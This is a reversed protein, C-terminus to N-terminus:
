ITFQFSWSPSLSQRLESIIESYEHESLIKINQSRFYDIRELWITQKTPFTSYISRLINIHRGYRYFTVGKLNPFFTLMEKYDDWGGRSPTNVNKVHLILYEIHSTYRYAAVNELKLYSIKLPIHELMSIEPACVFHNAYNKTIYKLIQPAIKIWKIRFIKLNPCMVDVVTKILYDFTLIQNEHNPYACSFHTLNPLTIAAPLTVIDPRQYVLLHTLTSKSNQFLHFLFIVFKPPIQEIYILFESLNQMNKLLLNSISNWKTMDFNGFILNLNLKRFSKLYKGYFPPFQGNKEHLCLEQFIKVPPYIDLRITEVANQWSKCVLRFSNFCERSDSYKFVHQLINTQHVGRPPKNLHFSDISTKFRQFKPSDKGITKLKSILQEIKEPNQLISVIEDM